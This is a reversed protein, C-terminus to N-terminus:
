IWEGIEDKHRAHMIFWRVKSLYFVDLWINREEM